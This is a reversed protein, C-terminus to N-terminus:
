LKRRLDPPVLEALLKLGHRNPSNPHPEREKNIENNQKGDIERERERESERERERGRM